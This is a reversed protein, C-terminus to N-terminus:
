EQPVLSRIEKKDTTPKRKNPLIHHIKLAKLKGVLEYIKLDEVNHFSEIITVKEIFWTPLSYFKRHKIRKIFIIVWITHLASLTLFHPIYIEFHWKKRFKFSNMIKTSISWSYCRSHLNVRICWKLFIGIKGLPAIFKSADIIM